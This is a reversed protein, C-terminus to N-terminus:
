SLLDLLDNINVTALAIVTDAAGYYIKLEEDDELILGCPFIVNNRFGNSVEYDAEPVMLPKDLIGIVKSPDELDLLMLGVTYRKQWTDEWGNKGRTSDFDVAHFTTLWGKETKIPPAAPGIKSNCYPVNDAGLLLSSNGWHVLDPSKSIWIDFSERENKGYVAFPRELRVYNNNIKEPFLVMNRNDPVSMSLINFEKFDETVAIAGRIGHLTDVAFSLYCLDDIVTLRPDYARIIENDGLSFCPEPMVEWELGDESFALGLNTGSFIDGDFEGFDNRFVMVYKGKFKAVGPNFLLTADYPVQEATLVPNKNYRKVISLTKYEKNINM